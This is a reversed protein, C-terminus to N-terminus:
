FYEFYRFFADHLKIIYPSDQNYLSKMEALVMKPKSDRGIDIVQDMM